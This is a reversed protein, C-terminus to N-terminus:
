IPGLLKCCSGRWFPQKIKSRVDRNLVSILCHWLHNTWVSAISINRILVRKLIVGAYYIWSNIQFSLYFEQLAYYYDYFDDRHDNVGAAMNKGFCTCTWWRQGGDWLVTKSLIWFNDNWLNRRGGWWFYVQNPSTKKPQFILILM